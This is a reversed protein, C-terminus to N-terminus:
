FKINIGAWYSKLSPYSDEIGEPDAFGINDISFLNNGAIYVEVFPLLKLPNEFSYSLRVDRLKLYSANRYWHTSQRYNNENSLTTLRPMTAVSANGPTWFVENELFTNSITNNNVLPKYLTSNLLNISHNGVGQFNAYFTFRKYNLKIDFGYYIEPVRPAYMKIVDNGDIINDGNQDKYKIDGPRVTYFTQVASNNIDEQNDFFGDAELGYVQHVSNGKKSLYDYPMFGENNEIIESATFAFVAGLEYSFDGIKDKWGISGDFGRYKTIGDNQSKSSLGLISSTTSSTSILLDYHKNFFANASLSLKSNILRLDVGFTTKQMKELGLDTTPLDSEGWGGKNVPSGTSGTAVYGPKGSTYYIKELDYPISADWASYGFSGKIKLYDILNSGFFDEDSILWAAAVAPYVDFRDGLQIASAGAYTIAVDLFYKKNYNYAFYGGVSQRLRSMNQGTVKNSEQIYILNLDIDNKGFSKKYNINGNLFSNFYTSNIGSNHGLTQSNTGYVIPSTVLTGDSLLSPNLAEYQYDLASSEYLSGGNDIAFLASASLGKTIADLNQRITIDLNLSNIMTKYHGNQSLLAIPNKDQYINDGGWNGNTKIPFAGSPTKYISEIISNPASPGNFEKLQAQLNASFETTNTVDVRINTRLTLRTDLLQNKYRGDENYHKFLGENRSYDILAFYDFKENGGRANFSLQHNLETDSLVENYWDINAYADPYTGNKFADLELASYREPLGDYMLATNLAKGYTFSDAFDPSRFKTSIGSQYSAEIQLKPLNKGKKTIINVVGRAGAVGYITAAIADKFVQVEEIEEVIINDLSRPVGDVLILPSMGQLTVSPNRLRSFGNKQTVNLGPIQGFLADMVHTKTANALANSDSISVDIASYEPNAVINAGVEINKISDVVAEGDAFANNIHIIFLSILLIFVNIKM